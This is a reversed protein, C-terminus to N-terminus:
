ILSDIINECVDANGLVYVNMSQIANGATYQETQRNTANFIAISCLILAAAVAANRFSSQIASFYNQEANATEIKKMVCATFDKKAKVRVLSRLCDEITKYIM